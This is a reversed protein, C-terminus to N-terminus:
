TKRWNKRFQVIKLFFLSLFFPIPSSIKYLTSCYFLAFRPIKIYSNSLFSLRLFFFPSIFILADCADALSNPVPGSANPLYTPRPNRYPNVLFQYCYYRGFTYNVTPRCAAEFFASIRAGMPRPRKQSSHNRRGSARDLSCETISRVISQEAQRNGIRSFIQQSQVSGEVELCGANVYKRRVKAFM